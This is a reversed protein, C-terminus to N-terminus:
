IDWLYIYKEVILKQVMEPLDEFDVRVGLAPNATCLKGISPGGWSNQPVDIQERSSGSMGVGQPHFPNRSM